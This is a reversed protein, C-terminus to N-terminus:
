IALISPMVSVRLDELWISHTRRIFEMRIRASSIMYASNIKMQFSGPPSSHEGGPTTELFLQKKM